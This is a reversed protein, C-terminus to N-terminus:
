TRWPQTRRSNVIQRAVDLPSALKRLLVRCVGMALSRSSVKLGLSALRRNHYDWFDPVGRGFRERLWETALCDYYVMHIWSWCMAYENDDLYDHGYSYVCIFRDVELSYYNRERYTIADTQMRCYTLVQHVFGFDKDALIQMAADTDFYARDEPFFEPLRDRVIASRYLVASPTGFLFKHELLHMRGAVQGPVVNVDVPLGFGEGDNGVLRYSSVIAVSPSTEAVRVMEALCQPYMWDDALVVKTYVSDPSAQRLAFNFNKAQPLFTPPSVVRIRSDLAAFREAIAGSGDTSHNNCIIYEWNSYTQALVSRIAEELYEACNYVPTVISVFPEVGDLQNREEM